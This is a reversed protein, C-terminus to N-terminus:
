HLDVNMELMGFPAAPVTLLIAPFQGAVVVGGLPLPLMQVGALEVREDM